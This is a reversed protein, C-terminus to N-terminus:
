RRIGHRGRQAAAMDDHRAPTLAVEPGTPPEGALGVHVQRRGAVEMVQWHGQAPLDCATAHEQPRTM